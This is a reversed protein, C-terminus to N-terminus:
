RRLPRQRQARARWHELYHQEDQKFADYSPYWSNGDKDPGIVAALGMVAIWRVEWDSDDLAQGLPDLAAKAKMGRLARAAGRRVEVDTSRLLQTLAYIAAQDKVGELSGGLNGGTSFGDESIAFAASHQWAEAVLPLMSTDNRELLMAIGLQNLPPSFESAVIRLLASAEQTEITKLARLAEWHPRLRPMPTQLVCALEATVRALPDGEMVCGSRAALIFPDYPSTLSLGDAGSRLFFLGFDGPTLQGYGVFADPLLFNFSVEEAAQGKLTREIRLAAKMSRAARMQGVIEYKGRAVEEITILQGVAILTSNSTMATVNMSPRIAALPNPSLIAVFIFLALLLLKQSRM